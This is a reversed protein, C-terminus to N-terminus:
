CCLVGKRGATIWRCFRFYDDPIGIDIFDTQLLVAKLKAGEVMAPFTLRELSFPLHDWNQFSEANLQCLGANVWGAGQKNNKEQFAIVRHQQDFQVRGYRAADPLEVVAMVPVKAQTVEAIGTGLWTDANTVLFNGSLQLKEVAFAVAGGTDMPMPEVLWCVECDMLVGANKEKQLFSVVLNAQHHLLFVFSNIGQTKWHDIQLQLFPVKGVPALAKPVDAVISQLRTGFGGALVLLRM